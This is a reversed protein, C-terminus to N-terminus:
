LLDCGLHVSQDISATMPSATSSHFLASLSSSRTQTWQTLAKLYSLLDSCFSFTNEKMAAISQSCLLLVLLQHDDLRWLAHAKNYDISVKKEVTLILNTDVGPHTISSSSWDNRSLAPSCVPTSTVTHRRPSRPSLCLPLGYLETGCYPSDSLQQEGEGFLPRLSCRAALEDSLIPNFYSIAKMPTCCWASRYIPLRRLVTGNSYSGQATWSLKPPLPRHGFCAQSHGFDLEDLM